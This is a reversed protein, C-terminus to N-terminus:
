PRINFDIIRNLLTKYSVGLLRAAKRRNWRTDRLANWIAQREAQAVYAKSIKKLSFDSERFFKRLTDDGWATEPKNLAFHGFASEQSLNELNLDKFVVDWDRLVIARRCLNELERINGPWPYAQFLESIEDPVEMFEKKFEFCYKNLFYDTLLPIDDKRRRLPAAKIHVVNLRYFLDKRFTGERVKKQLDANTIAVVRTDVIKDRTGGLRSFTKEELVQLFKAQLSLSLEGIEDILITGSDAMELRGPKDRHAGTFAGTQFGFVESELLQDPLVACNIKVLPGMRRSSHFHISRAVLEKGTGTEGTVLLPVDKDCLKQIKEKINWIEKSKGIILPFDPQLRYDTKQKLASEARESIENVDPDQSLTYVGEFPVSRVGGSDLCRLVPMVPNTIKLRHICKLASEADVSAGLIALDPSLAELQDVPMDPTATSWYHGLQKVREELKVSNLPNADIILVNLESKM